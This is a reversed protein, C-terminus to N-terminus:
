NNIEFWQLIRNMCVKDNVHSLIYKRPTYNPLNKQIEKLADEFEYDRLIREGCVSSWCIATTAFLNKRGVYEKYSGYEDMMSVVDWVLIPVNSALCEQFAFGQSEHSGVWIAFKAVRLTNM